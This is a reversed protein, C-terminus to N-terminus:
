APGADEGFRWTRGGPWGDAALALVARYYPSIRSVPYRFDARREIPYGVFAVGRFQAPASLETRYKRAYARLRAPDRRLQAVSLPRGAATRYVVGTLPDLAGWRRGRAVEVIMHGSYARRLDALAVLRAPRGAAQALAAAVRAVDTCWDSGRRLIAEETGGFRLADPDDAGRPRLHSTFRALADVFPEDDRRDGGWARLCRELGPRSGARYRSRAPAPRGYFRAHTAPSWCVMRAQLVRDVSGDAHPDRAFLNAYAPGFVGLGRVGTTRTM